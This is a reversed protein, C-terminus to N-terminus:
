NDIESLVKQAKDWTIGALSLTFQYGISQEKQEQPINPVHPEILLLLNLVLSAILLFKFASFCAGALRNAWSLSMDRLFKHVIKGLLKAVVWVVLIILVYSLLRAIFESMANGNQLIEALMPSLMKGALIGAGICVIGILEKALGRIGGIVIGAGAIILLILDLTGM